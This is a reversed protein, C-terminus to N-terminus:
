SHNGPLRTTNDPNGTIHSSAGTRRGSCLRKLGRGLSRVTRRTLGEPNMADHAVLGCMTLMASGIVSGRRTRLMGNFSRCRSRGRGTPGIGNPGTGDFRPM